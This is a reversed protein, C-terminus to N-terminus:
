EKTHEALQGPHVKYYWFERCHTNHRRYVPLNHQRVVAWQEPQTVFVCRGDNVLVQGRVPDPVADLIIEDGNERHAVLIPERCAACEPM